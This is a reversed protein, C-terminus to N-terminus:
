AWSLARPQFKEFKELTVGASRIGRRPINSRSLITTDNAGGRMGIRFKQNSKRDGALPINLTHCIAKCVPVATGNKLVERTGFADRRARM